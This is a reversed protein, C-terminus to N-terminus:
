HHLLGPAPRRARIAKRFVDLALETDNSESAAWAVVRRSHLDLMPALYLWGGGTAIATVDTVWARNPEDVHFKRALLNRASPGGHKSDTTRKFRRKSRGRLGNERMLHLLKYKIPCCDREASRTDPLDQTDPSV